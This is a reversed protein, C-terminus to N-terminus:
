RSAAIDGNHIAAKFARYDADNQDGYRVSFEGIAEDFRRGKGLYGAVTQSDVSRAHARALSWGCINAYNLLHDASMEEIEASGKMDKLQRWYYHRGSPAETWGLFGDSSAQMLRQGEVVRQGATPYASSALHDELVSHTAEKIQLFLPDDENRGELLVIFCWTGVSGVGVIKVAVDVLTFRRLLVGLHHPVTDVYETLQASVAADVAELEDVQGWDRLPIILPPRSVIQHGDESVEGLKGLVHRSDRRPAKRLGKELAGREKDTLGGGFAESLASGDIRSYWVELYGMKAFQRMAKRYAAASASAVRREESEDFGNNRAAIAFSAALRKVDWEWPGPLTEDFDNLDFVVSREPSGYLGFNSLHADGSIQAHVGTSPTGALDLAMVKAAGRYFAFPSEAM